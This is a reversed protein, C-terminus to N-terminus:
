KSDVLQTEYLNQYLSCNLILEQHQGQAVIQGKDMVAIVDAGIITSFRHAIIFTTRDRMIEELAKHIKAESDADVQSTAEDFILIAPNKLIARAIIIRQLQGGSLGVGQEGIMTGYGEPLPAIFEHAFARRAAAIVEDMTAGPKGYAINAAITDNFTVVNQTVMAIQSRLSKLTFDHLDNGDILISGADVDYFRPLLNVLTTKGSGNPGVIAVNHGAQVTLNVHNLVPKCSDPYSFTVDRFEIKNKVPPLNTAISKDHETPQDIIGFVRESAANAQQIKNWVDSTKRISEAASGLLLLLVMFEEAELQGKNVWYAGAILAASGAFMGIVELVPMTATDVKSIKLLQKLLKRNIMKFSSCEYEQQNYVKVVKLGALTGQLKALLLSQAVLSKGSARKMKKGLLAALGLTLPAACLFILSLQWNLWMAFGLFFAANLPERLAKGLMIKIAKGMAATDGILRSVIDSPRENNFYAIPVDMVHAFTDERLQSIGTQVVKQALYGQLFKAICRIITVILMVLIIFVIAKMRNDQTPARPLLSVGSQAWGIVKLEIAMKIRKALSLDLTDIYSKNHITPLTISKDEVNNQGDFRKLQIAVQKQNTTALEKLLDSYFIKKAPQALSLKDVAFIRDGTKLGATKALSKEEVTRVLLYNAIDTQNKEAVGVISPIDFDAGYQWNCAKRDIWGHLGEQTMMVKLIPIVTLFSLSLLISVIIAMLVVVIIRPWQPKIYKFIRKFSDM